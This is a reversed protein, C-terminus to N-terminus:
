LGFAEQYTIVKLKKPAHPDEIVEPEGMANQIDDVNVLAFLRIFNKRSETQYIM